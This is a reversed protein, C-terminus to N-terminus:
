SSRRFSATQVSMFFDALPVLRKAPSPVVVEAMRMEYITFSPLFLRYAPAEIRSMLYPRSTPRFKPM